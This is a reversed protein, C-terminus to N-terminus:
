GMKNRFAVMNQKHVVRPIEKQALSILQYISFQKFQNAEKCALTRQGIRHQRLNHLAKRLGQLNLANKKKNNCPQCMTQANAFADSGGHSKPLIHDHTLRVWTGGRKAYLHFSYANDALQKEIYWRSGKAGCHVCCTQGSLFLRIRVGSKNVKIESDPEIVYYAVGPTKILNLGTELDFHRNYRALKDAIVRTGDQFHLIANTM